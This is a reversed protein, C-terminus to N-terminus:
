GSYGICLERLDLRHRALYVQQKFAVGENGLAIALNCKQHVLGRVKGTEHCHDVVTTRMNKQLPEECVACLGDQDAWLRLDGDAPLGYRKLVVLARRRCEVSCYVSRGSGLPITTDCRACRIENRKIKNARVCERCRIVMRHKLVSPSFAEDPLERKCKVCIEM